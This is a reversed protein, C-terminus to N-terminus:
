MKAQVTVGITRPARNRSTLFGNSQPSVTDPVVQNSCNNCYLGVNWNPSAPRYTLAVNETTHSGDVYYEPSSPLLNNSNMPRRGTFQAAVRLDLTATNIPFTRTYAADAGWHPQNPLPNGTLDPISGGTKTPLDHGDTLEAHNYALSIDLRDFRTPAWVTDLDLGKIQAKGANTLNLQPAGSAFTLYTLEFNKYDYWYATANVQLTRDFFQNKSGIEYAKLTEPGFVPNAGFAVGGAKYGTSVSAYVNSNEGLDRQAVARWTVKNFDVAATVDSHLFFPIDLISRGSRDDHTFRAGATFHWGDVPTWVEQTFVAYSKSVNGPLDIFFHNSVTQLRNQTDIEGGNSDEHDAFVGAAYQLTGKGDSVIRAEFSDYRSGALFTQFDAGNAPFVTAPYFPSAPVTIAPGDTNAYLGATSNLFHHSYIASVTAAKFDYDYQLTADWTKTDQSAQKPGEPIRASNNWASSDTIAQTCGGAITVSWCATNSEGIGKGGSHATELTLLLRSADQQYQALFRGAQEDADDLGNQFYGRHRLEMFAARIAFADTLPINIAGEAHLLDFTGYEVEGSVGFQQSPTKTMINVAGGSANRGYLTGQPGYLVEIHDIDFFHGRLGAMRPLYAGNLNVAVSNEDSPGFALTRVGRLGIITSDTQQNIQISPSVNTINGIDRVGSRALEEADVVQIKIPTEQVNASRKEATVVIEELGVTTDAPAATQQAYGSVAQLTGVSFAALLCLTQKMEM